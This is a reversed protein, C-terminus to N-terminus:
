YRFNHEGESVQWLGLVPFVHFESVDATMM